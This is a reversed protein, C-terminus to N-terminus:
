TSRDIKDCGASRARAWVLVGALGVPLWSIFWEARPTDTLSAADFQMALTSFLWLGMMGKGILSARALWIEKLVLLWVVSWLLLGPLGLEIGVHTFMNHSHDFERGVAPVTYATGLGLGTWLHNAIMQVSSQFIEPRFSAGRMILGYVMVFGVLAVVIAGLAFVCSRRDRCWLPMAVVTVLLALGAGRSQGLAVFAGLCAMSLVWLVQMWRQQPVWHLMWVMAAGIVYAGLIPHSIEGIGELREIWPNGDVGYFRIISILAALGLGIAGWQMLAILRQAGLGALLPFAMLFVAIYVLRKIERGPVDTAAWYLTVLCWSLLLLVTTWLARQERWVQGFRERASWGLLLTPLWVFAILGQQYVKNSPALAIGMLFWLLGVALWLQAWRSAYM